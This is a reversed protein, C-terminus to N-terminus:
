VLSQLYLMLEDKLYDDEVKEIEAMFNPAQRELRKRRYEEYKAADAESLCEPYNRGKYHLLLEPLREDIFDPQFDALKAPEANRVAAVKIRDTDNLFGDYLAAEPEVAPPFEPRNEYQERMQEAFEPHNM